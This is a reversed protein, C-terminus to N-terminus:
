GDTERLIKAVFEELRRELPPVTADMWHQRSLYYRFAPGMEENDLKLPCFRIGHGIRQFALDIENLVHSSGLSNQSLIVIFLASHDIAKVIASAYDPMDVNRPAYWVRIGSAELKACLNDAINRDKSSYSIFALPREKQEQDPQLDRRTNRMLSYSGSLVDVIRAAKEPDKEIFGISQICANRKLFQICENLFPMIILSDSIGLNGTGAVPLGLTRIEIGADVALDLLHFYAKFISLFPSGSQQHTRMNNPFGLIEICGVRRVPIGVATIEESLWVGCLDRLDVAPAVSLDQVSIGKDGLAGIMTQPLPTYNRCFASVTMVDLPERLERIDGCLVSLIKAGHETEIQINSLTEM